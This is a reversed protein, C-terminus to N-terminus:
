SVEQFSLLADRYYGYQIKRSQIEATISKFLALFTKELQKIESVVAKQREISPVQIPFTKVMEANINNQSGRGLGKLTKYEKILWYYVYEVLAEDENIQLNCCAQNTTLPIRNIATKAATAGYMAVIVCNAPILKASSNRM